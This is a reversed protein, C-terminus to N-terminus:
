NEEGMTEMNVKTFECLYYQLFRLIIVFKSM